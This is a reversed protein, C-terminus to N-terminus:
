CVPVQRHTLTQQEVSQEVVRVMKSPNAELRTRMNLGETPPSWWRATSVRATRSIMGRTPDITSKCWWTMSDAGGSGSCCGYTSRAM